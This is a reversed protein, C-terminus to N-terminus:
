SAAMRDQYNRQAYVVAGVDASNEAQSLRSAIEEDLWPVILERLGGLLSMAPPNTAWLKRAVSNLYRAGEQIIEVAVQDGANAADFVLSALRAFERPKASAMKEVLSNGNALLLRSFTESLQTKPGLEDGALLVARIAELGIWAGSCTDGFSFGHAGIILTKGDIISCGSSGTGAVIVAGSRGDHAGFCAIELDTTLFMHGFPHKWESMSHYVTPLNVGALGIGAVVHALEDHGLGADALAIATAEQISDITQDYGQFPNAPGAIGTGLVQRDGTMLVARCKSGGGDLGLYITNDRAKEEPM